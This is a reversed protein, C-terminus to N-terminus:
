KQTLSAREKAQAVLADFRSDGHLAKLEPDQEMELLASRPLGHDVADHLLSFAKDRHGRRAEFAGLAYRSLATEPNDPGLLRLRIGLVDQELKVAEDNHNEHFLVDALDNM